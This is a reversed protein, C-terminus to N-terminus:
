FIVRFNLTMAGPTINGGTPNAVRFNANGTTPFAEVLLGGAGYGTVGNPDSAFSWAIVSGTTTGTVAIRSKLAHAGTITQDAAPATLVM